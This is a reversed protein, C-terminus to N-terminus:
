AAQRGFYLYGMGRRDINMKMFICIRGGGDSPWVGRKM